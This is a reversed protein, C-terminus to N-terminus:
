KLIVIKSRIAFASPIENEDILKVAWTKPTKSLATQLLHRKQISHSSKGIRILQWLSFSVWVCWYMRVIFYVCKEYLLIPFLRTLALEVKEPEAIPDM